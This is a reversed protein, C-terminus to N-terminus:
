ADPGKLIMPLVGVEEFERRLNIIHTTSLETAQCISEIDIGDKLMDFVQRRRLYATYVRNTPINRIQMGPFAGVLREYAPQGILRQLHNPTKPSEPIYLSSGNRGYWAAIVSTATFGIVASIDDLITNKIEM